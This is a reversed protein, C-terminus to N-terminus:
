TVIVVPVLWSADFTYCRRRVGYFQRCFGSLVFSSLRIRELERPIIQSLKLEADRLM